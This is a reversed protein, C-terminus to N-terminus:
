SASQAENGHQIQSRPAKLERVYLPADMGYLEERHSYRFGMKKMVHLSPANEPHAFAYVQDFGYWAHAVEIWRSAVETALGRGWWPRALRYGLEVRRLDPLYFIGFGRHTRGDRLRIYDM